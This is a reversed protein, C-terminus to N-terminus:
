MVKQRNRPLIDVNDKWFVWCVHMPEGTFISLMEQKAKNQENLLNQQQKLIMLQQPTLGANVVNNNVNNRVSNLQNSNYTSSYTMTHNNIIIINNNNKHGNKTKSKNNKYSSKSKSKSISKRRDRTGKNSKSVRKVRKPKINSDTSINNKQESLQSQTEANESVTDISKLEVLEDDDSNNTTTTDTPNGEIHSQSVLQQGLNSYFNSIPPLDNHDDFDFGLTKLQQKQQFNTDFNFNPYANANPHGNVNFNNNNNFTNNFGNEFNTQQQKTTENGMKKSISNGKLEVVCCLSFVDNM